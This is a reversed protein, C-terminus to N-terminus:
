AWSAPGALRAILLKYWKEADFVIGWIRIIYTMM